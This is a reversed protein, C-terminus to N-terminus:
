RRQKTPLEAIEQLDDALDELSNTIVSAMSKVIRDIPREKGQSDTNKKRLMELITRADQATVNANLGTRVSTLLTMYIAKEKNNM